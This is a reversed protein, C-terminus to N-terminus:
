GKEPHTCVVHDEPLYHTSFTSTRVPAGTVGIKRFSRTVTVDFGTAPSQPVCGATADTIEKPQTVNRRPGKVAEVDWVKTGYFSVILESGSVQTNILIGFGTDNTWVQDVDPWSVTAERGEPYRPIYFSHPTHREIRVGAFFAANFTTTSVQSVGGGYGNVLRGANIVPAQQYGKAPTRPGLTGNLSFKEGPRILTGDLTRAAIRINTTRPPNFAFSTTFTSIKERIGWAQAMATTVKPPVLVVTITATRAPSTLAAVFAAQVAPEDFRAGVASPVVKPAGAVVRVTADVPDRALAPSGALILAVLRPPDIRPRLTGSGDPALSLAPAFQAPQLTVAAQGAVVRVPGSMAPVAFENTARTIEAASVKPPKVLMAAKVVQQRPWRSAVLDSTEPVNVGSGPSPAVTTARGGTFTISGEKVPSEVGRAAETVAATLKARDVSTKLPREEGGTLRAWMQAPNLTFGNLDALTAPLDVKLGAAGPDIDVTRSPAQIRVPQSAKTALVRQLTVTATEPSMGGIATGDVTTDSPVHSSLFVALGCYVAGLVALAVALRLFVPNARMASWRSENTTM